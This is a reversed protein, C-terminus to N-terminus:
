STSTSRCKWTTPGRPGVARTRSSPSAACSTPPLRRTTTATPSPSTSGRGGDLRRGLDAVFQDFGSPGSKYMVMSGEFDLTGRTRGRAFPSTGRRKAIERTSTYKIEKVDAYVKQTGNPL